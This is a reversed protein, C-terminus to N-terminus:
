RNPFVLTTVGRDNALSQQPGHLHATAVVAQAPAGSALGMVRARREARMIDDNDATISVEVVAHSGGAQDTFIIDTEQLDAIEDPRVVGSQRAQRFIRNLEPAVLGEQHFVITPSEMGLVQELRLLVRSRVRREYAAGEFNGARGELRDMQQHVLRFNAETTKVFRDLQEQMLRFNAETTEAFRDSQEQMLRFREETTEAFRDSQEQMLRFREETTEAFRALQQPLNLVEEVLVLSRITALWDPRDQLIQALDRIDNITTM